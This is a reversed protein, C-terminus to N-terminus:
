SSKMKMTFPFTEKASTFYKSFYHIGVRSVWNSGRKLFEESEPKSLRYFLATRTIFKKYEEVRNKDFLNMSEIDKLNYISQIFKMICKKLKKVFM